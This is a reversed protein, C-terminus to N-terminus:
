PEPGGMGAAVHLGVLRAVLVVLIIQGFIAELVAFTRAAEGTPTIDGYGLTTITVFSFYMLEQLRASDPQSIEATDVSASIGEFSGPVTLETVDYVFAFMVAVLLYVCLAASLSGGDVSKRSFLEVLVCGSVLLFFAITLGDSWIRRLALDDPGLFALVLTPVALAIAAIVFGRRQSVAFVAGVLTISLLITDVPIDFIRQHTWPQLLFLLFLFVLLFHFFGGSRLWGTRAPENM